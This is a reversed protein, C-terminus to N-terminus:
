DWERESEEVAHAPEPTQWEWQQPGNQAYGREQEPPFAVPVEWVAAPPDSLPVDPPWTYKGKAPVTGGRIPPEGPYSDNLMWLDVEVVNTAHGLYTGSRPDDFFTTVHTGWGESPILEGSWLQSHSHPKPLKLYGPLGVHCQFPTEHSYARPSWSYNRRLFWRRGQEFCM